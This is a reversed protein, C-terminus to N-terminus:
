KEEEAVSNEGSLLIEDKLDMASAVRQQFTRDIVYNRVVRAGMVLRRTVETDQEEPLHATLKSRLRMEMDVIMKAAEAYFVFDATDAGLAFCKAYLGCVAVDQQNFIGKELPVLLGTSILKRVERLKLGTAICFEAENLVLADADGFITASLEVLPAVDLGRERHSLLMKIKRLPFAYKDQMARIFEIREICAPDYYAMNPGTRVPEPLLGQAVYHLIASKPIGTSASLEKMRLGEPKANNRSVRINGPTFSPKLLMGQSCCVLKKRRRNMLARVREQFGIGKPEKYLM